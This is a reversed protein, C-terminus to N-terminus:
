RGVRAPGLVEPEHPPAFLRQSRADSVARVQCVIPYALLLQRPPRMRVSTADVLLILPDLPADANAEGSAGPAIELEDFAFRQRARKWPPGSTV